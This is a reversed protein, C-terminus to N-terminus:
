CETLRNKSLPHTFRLNNPLSDLEAELEARWVSEVTNSALEYESPHQDMLSKKLSDTRKLITTLERKISVLIRTNVRLNNALSNLRITSLENLTELMANTKELRSLLSQQDTTIRSVDDYRIMKALKWLWSLCNASNDNIDAMM